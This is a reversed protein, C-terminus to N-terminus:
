IPRKGVRSRDYRKNTIKKSWLYFSYVHDNILFASSIVDLINGSSEHELSKPLIPLGEKESCNKWHLRWLTEQKLSDASQWFMPRVTCEKLLSVKWSGSLFIMLLPNRFSGVKHCSGSKFLLCSCLLTFSSPEAMRSSRVLFIKPLIKLWFIDSASIARVKRASRVRAVDM